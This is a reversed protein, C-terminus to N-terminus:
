GGAPVAPVAAILGWTAEFTDGEELVVRGDGNRLMDPACTMPEVGLGRRRRSPDTLTDGTFAMVHTYSSDMWLRTSRGSGDGAAVQVVARGDSGRVLHTFADDLHAVGIMRPARFDLGTSEVPVTATPLGREDARYATAAPLTLEFGDVLGGFAALYPHWGIGVPCPGRGRNTVATRVRLGGDSLDYDVALDLIWPWGPQPYLRYEMRARDEGASAVSWSAWRVLGHIANHRDPETLPTQLEEGRWVYRGDGLRNPWPALLQGRGGSCAEDEGYGDLVAEGGVSYSRIGGGVEM